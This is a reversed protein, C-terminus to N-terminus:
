GADESGVVYGDRKGIVVSVKCDQAPDRFTVSSSDGVLSGLENHKAAGKVIALREGWDCEFNSPGGKEVIGDALQGAASEGGTAATGADDFREAVM